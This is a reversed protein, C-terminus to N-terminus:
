VQVLCELVELCVQASVKFSWVRLVLKAKIKGVVKLILNLVTHTRYDM